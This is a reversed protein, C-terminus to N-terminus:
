QFNVQYSLQKWQFHTWGLIWYSITSIRCFGYKKKLFFALIEGLFFLLGHSQLSITTLIQYRVVSNSFSSIVNELEEWSSTAEVFESDKLQQRIRM